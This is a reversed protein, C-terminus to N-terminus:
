GQSPVLPVFGTSPSWDQTRPWGHLHAKWEELESDRLGTQLLAPFKWKIRMGSKRM